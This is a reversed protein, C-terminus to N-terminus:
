NMHKFNQINNICIVNTVGRRPPTPPPNKDHAQRNLENIMYTENILYKEKLYHKSGGRGRRPPSNHVDSINIVKSFKNKM